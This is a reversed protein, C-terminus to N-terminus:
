VEGELKESIEGINEIIYTHLEKIILGQMEEKLLGHCMTLDSEPPIVRGIQTLCTMSKGELVQKNLDGKKVQIVEAEIECKSDTKGKIHYTWILEEADSIFKTKSCKIQHTQFCAKDECSYSFFMTFYFAVLLIILAAIFLIKKNVM